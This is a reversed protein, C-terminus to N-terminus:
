MPISIGSIQISFTITSRSGDVWTAGEKLTFAVGVTKTITADLYTVASIVNENNLASTKIDSYSLSNPNM